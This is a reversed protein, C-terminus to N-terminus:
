NCKNEYKEKILLLKLKAEELNISHIIADQEILLKQRKIRLKSEENLAELRATDFIHIM